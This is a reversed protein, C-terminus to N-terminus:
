PMVAARLSLLNATRGTPTLATASSTQQLHQGEFRQYTYSTKQDAATAITVFEVSQPESPINGGFWRPDEQQKWTVLSLVSGAPYSPGGGVHQRAYRLAVDNGFLTSMTSSRRDAFSTVVGWSLPNAPLNAPLLAPQNLTTVVRPNPASCGSVLIATATVLVL